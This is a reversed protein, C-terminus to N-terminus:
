IFYLFKIYDLFFGIIILVLVWSLSSIWNFLQFKVANLGSVGAITPLATRVFIIFHGIFLAFLGHKNLMSQAKQYSQKPLYSIWLQLIKKNKLFKGQLYSIWSGLSVAITVSSLTIFFNLIGKSVLIGLIIILSDGPLFFALLVAHEIFLVIFVLLYIFLVLRECSSDLCNDTIIRYLDKLINM